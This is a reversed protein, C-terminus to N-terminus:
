DSEDSWAEKSMEISELVNPSNIAIERPIFYSPGGADTTALFVEVYKGDAIWRCSDFSDPTETISKWRNEGVAEVTTPIDILDIPDEIINVNGGYFDMFDDEPIIDSEPNIVMDYFYQYIEPPANKLEEFNKYIKM